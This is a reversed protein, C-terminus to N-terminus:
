TQYYIEFTIRFKSKEFKNAGVTKGVCFNFLRIEISFNKVKYSIDTDNRIIKLVSKVRGKLNSYFIEFYESNEWFLSCEFDLFAHMMHTVHSM